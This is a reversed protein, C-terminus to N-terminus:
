CEDGDLLTTHPPVRMQHRSLFGAAFTGGATVVLLVFLAVPAPVPGNRFVYEDLLWVIFGAVVAAGGGGLTANRVKPEVPYHGDEDPEAVEWGMNNVSM